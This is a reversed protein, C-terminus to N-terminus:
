AVGRYFLSNRYSDEKAKNWWFLPFVNNSINYPEHYYIAEGKKYGFRYNPTLKELKSEMAKMDETAAILADGKFFDSIGKSLWIGSFYQVDLTDLVGKSQNMAAMCCVYISPSSNTTSYVERLWKIKRAIKSGSGIFDDILVISEPPTQLAAVSTIHSHFNGQGWGDKIPFKQTLAKTLFQSGDSEDKDAVAVIISKDSTLKWNNLIHEAIKKANSGLEASGSYEFRELLNLVLDQQRGTECTNLLEILANDRSELWSRSKMLQFVSRFLEPSLTKATM